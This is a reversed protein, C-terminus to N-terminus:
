KSLRRTLRQLASSTRTPAAMPPRADVSFLSDMRLFLRLDGRLKMAGSILALPVNLRATLMRCFVATDRLHIVLGPHDVTGEGSTPADPSLEVYWEGGGPGDVRFALTTRLSGGIDQRYLLSFARMTREIVRHRLEPSFQMWLPPLGTPEAVQASHFLGMHIHIIGLVEVIWVPRNYIPMHVTLEAQDPQLNRAISTTEDLIDLLRACLAELSIGLHDDIGKRNFTNFEYRNDLGPFKYVAGRLAHKISALGDGNLACLHAITEHLPWETASGKVPKDWRTADLGAFFGAYIRHVESLDAALTRPDFTTNM